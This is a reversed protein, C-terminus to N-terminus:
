RGPVRELREGGSWPSIGPNSDRASREWDRLFRAGMGCTVVATYRAGEGSHPSVM